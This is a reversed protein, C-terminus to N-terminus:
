ANKRKFIMIDFIYRPTSKFVQAPDIIDFYKKLPEITDIPMDFVCYEFDQSLQYAIEDTVELLYGVCLQSVAINNKSEEKSYNLSFPYFKNIYKLNKDDKFHILENILIKDIVYYKIGRYTFLHMYYNEAGGIDYVRKCNLKKCIQAKLEMASILGNNPGDCLIEELNYMSALLPDDFNTEIGNNEKEELKKHLDFHIKNLENYAVQLITDGLLNM